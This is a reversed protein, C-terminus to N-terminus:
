KFGKGLARLATLVSQMVEGSLGKWVLRHYYAAARSTSAIHICSINFNRCMWHRFFAMIYAYLWWPFTQLKLAIREVDVLGEWWWGVCVCVCVSVCVCVCVSILYLFVCVETSVSCHETNHTCQCVAYASQYGFTCQVYIWNTTAIWVSTSCMEWHLMEKPRRHVDLTTLPM